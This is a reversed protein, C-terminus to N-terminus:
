IKELIWDFCKLVEDDIHHRFTYQLDMAFNNYLDEDLLLRSILQKLKNKDTDLPLLLNHKKAIDHVFPMVHWNDWILSPIGKIACDPICSPNGVIANLKCKDMVELMKWYPSLEIFEDGPYDDRNILGKAELDDVFWWYTKLPIEDTRVEKLAAILNHAVEPPSVLVPDKTPWLIGDKHFAPPEMKEGFTTPLFFTRDNNSNSPNIFTEKLDYHPYLIYHDKPFSPDKLREELGWHIHFYKKAVAIPDGWAAGFYLDYPEYERVQNHHVLKVGPAPRGNGANPDGLSAAYVEYKGTKGLLRAINQAWRSEGREPSDLGHKWSGPVCVLIKM